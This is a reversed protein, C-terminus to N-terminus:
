RTEIDTSTLTLSLDIVWGLWRRCVEEVPTGQELDPGGDGTIRGTAAAEESVHPLQDQNPGPGPKDAEPLPREKATISRKQLRLCLSPQRVALVPLTSRIAASSGSYIFLLPSRM